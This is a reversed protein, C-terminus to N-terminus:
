STRRLGRPRDSTMPVPVIGHGLTCKGNNPFLRAAIAGDADTGYEGGTKRAIANAVDRVSMYECPQPVVSVILAGLDRRVASRVIKASAIVNAATSDADVDTPLSEPREWDTPFGDPVVTGNALMDAAERLTAIRQALKFAYDTPEASKRETACADRAAVATQAAILDGNRIQTAIADTLQSRIAAKRSRNASTYEAVIAAYEGYKTANADTQTDNTAPADVPASTTPNTTSSM